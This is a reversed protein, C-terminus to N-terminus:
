ADLEVGIQMSNIDAIVWDNGTNPDDELTEAEGVITTSDLDLIAGGIQAPTGTTKRYFFQVDRTGVTDMKGYIKTQVGVITTDLILSLASMDALSILGVIDATIRKDDEITSQTAVPENLADEISLAGGALDWDLTSGNGAPKLAEIYLVGLYDNNKSGTGDCFYVDTFSVQDTADGTTWSVVGRDAGDSGQNATNIGTNAADWTATQMGDKFTHYRLEFSGNVGTRVVCKFEFYTRKMNPAGSANLGVFRDVTRALETAGRMVRIKYTAGGPKSEASEVMELRLQEGASNRLALGPFASPSVNLQGSIVRFGFGLIWTNEVSGVLVPTRITLDDSEFQTRGYQDTYTSDVAGAVNTYVRSYFTAHQAAQFGELWRLM